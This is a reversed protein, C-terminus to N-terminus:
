QIQEMGIIKYITVAKTKKRRKEDRFCVLWGSGDEFYQVVGFFISEGESKANLRRQM